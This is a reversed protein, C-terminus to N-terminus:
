GWRIAIAGGISRARSRIQHGDNGSEIVWNGNERGVIKGVHHSWVVVAGIGAPGAHGWHAWNRALNYSPGPDQSVLHRMEWGCWAAPRPGYGSGYGGSQSDSSPALAYARAGSRYTPQVTNSGDAHRHEYGYHRAAFTRQAKHETARHIAGTTNSEEQYHAVRFSQRGHHHQHASAPEAFFALAAIAATMTMLKM